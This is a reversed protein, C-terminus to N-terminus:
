DGIIRARRVAAAAVIAAIAGVALGGGTVPLAPVAPAHGDPALPASSPRGRDPLAASSETLKDAGRPSEWGAAFAASTAPDERDGIFWFDYHAREDSFEIVGFGQAFGEHYQCWPNNATLNAEFVVDITSAGPLGAAELTESLGPSSVAPVIFEVGVSNGDDRYDGPRVPIDTAFSEHYDGTLVVVDPIQEMAAIVLRQEFAYGNWDDILLPPPLPPAEGPPLVSLSDQIASPFAQGMFFPFLMVPNGLVKWAASSTAMGDLLWSLQEDGLMTRDPSNVEPDVSGYSVFANTVHESRYRRVDLMWLDVMDGFQLRRHSLVPDAPDTARWPMWEGYAQMAAAARDAYSGETAEDHNEAGGSWADNAIEHDDYTVIMPHSAHLAQLDADGRYQGYRTRYDALTIIEHPPEHGRGIAEGPPTIFSSYERGFEYIYDGLHLVADIDDREALHRYPAFFGFEYEACTLVGLRIADRSAGPAPTTRTRGVPSPMGLATFRYWHDSGPTLGDVDIKLTHDTASTVAAGGSAVVITFDPDRAVEWTVEVSPGMGSGPVADASPTVRTWLIVRDTLPDGSAVGHLFPAEGAHAPPAWRGFRATLAAAGGVATGIFKRRSIQGM